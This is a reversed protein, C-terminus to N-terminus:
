LAVILLVIDLGQFKYLAPAQALDYGALDVPVPSPDPYYWPGWLLAFQFVLHAIPIIKVPDTPVMDQLLVDVVDIHGVPEKPFIGFGGLSHPAPGHAVARVMPLDVVVVKHLVGVGASRDDRALAPVLGIGHGPHPLDELEGLSAHHHVIPCRGPDIIVLAHLDIAEGIGLPVVRILLFVVPE